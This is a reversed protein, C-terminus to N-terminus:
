TPLRPPPAAGHCGRKGQTCLVLRPVPRPPTADAGGSGHGGHPPSGRRGGGSPALGRADRGGVNGAPPGRPRTLGAPARGDVPPGGTRAPARRPPPPPAASGRLRPRHRIAHRGGHGAAATAATGSDWGATCGCANASAAGRGAWYRALQHSDGRWWGRGNGGGRSGVGRRGLTQKHVFAPSRGDPSMMTNKGPQPLHRPAPPPRSCLVCRAPSFHMGANPRRADEATPRAAPPIPRGRMRSVSDQGCIRTQRALVWLDGM